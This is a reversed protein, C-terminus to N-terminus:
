RAVNSPQLMRERLKLFTFILLFAPFRLHANPETDTDTIFYIFGALSLGQEVRREAMVMRPDVKTTTQIQKTIDTGDMVKSRMHQSAPWMKLKVQISSNHWFFALFLFALL